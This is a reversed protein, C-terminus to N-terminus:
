SAPSRAGPHRDGTGAAIELLSGVRLDAVRNAPDPASPEFFVPGRYRDYLAPVSGSYLQVPDEM